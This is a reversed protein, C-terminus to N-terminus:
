PNCFLLEHEVAQKIFRNVTIGQERAKIAVLQHLSPNLRISFLGTFPKKPEVGCEECHELYMDVTDEFHARLEDLTNGEYTMAGSELGILSGFLYNEDLNFEVSGYYGKYSLVNTKQEKQEKQIKTKM